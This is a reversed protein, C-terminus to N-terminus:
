HSVLVAAQLDMHLRVLSHLAETLVTNMIIGMTGMTLLHDVRSLPHLLLIRPITARTNNPGIARPHLPDPPLRMRPLVEQHLALQRRM